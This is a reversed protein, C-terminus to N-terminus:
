PVMGESAMDELTKEIAIEFEMCGLSFSVCTVPNAPLEGLQEFWKRSWTFEKGKGHNILDAMDQMAAKLASVKALGEPTPKESPYILREYETVLESYKSDEQERSLLTMLVMAERYLRWKSQFKPWLSESLDAESVPPAQDKQVWGEFLVRAVQAAADPPRGSRAGFIRKLLNM